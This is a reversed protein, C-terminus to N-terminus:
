SVIMNQDSDGEFPKVVNYRALESCGVILDPDQGAHVSIKCFSVFECVCLSHLCTVCEVFCEAACKVGTM